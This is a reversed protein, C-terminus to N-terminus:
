MLTKFCPGVHLPTLGLHHIEDGLGGSLIQLLHSEASRTLNMLYLERNSLQSSGLLM